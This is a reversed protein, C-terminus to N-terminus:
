EDQPQQDRAHHKKRQSHQGPWAGAARLVGGYDGPIKYPRVYQASRSISDRPVTTWVFTADNHVEWRVIKEFELEGLKIV